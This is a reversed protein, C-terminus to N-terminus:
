EGGLLRKFDDGNMTDAEEGEIHLNPESHNFRFYQCGKCRDIGHYRQSIIIVYVIM